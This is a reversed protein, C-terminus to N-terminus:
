PGPNVRRKLELWHRALFHASGSLNVLCGVPEEPWRVTAGEAVLEALPRPGDRLSLLQEEAIFVLGPTEAAPAPEKLFRGEYVATAYALPRPGWSEELWHIARQWVLVPTPEDPQAPWEELRGDEFCAITATGPVLEVESGTEEIAERRVSDPLSEGPEQGGGVGILSVLPRGNADHEWYKRRSAAFVLRGAHWGLLGTSVRGGPALPRLDLM